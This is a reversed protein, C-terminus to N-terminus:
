DTERYFKSYFNKEPSIEQNQLTINEERETNNNKLNEQSNSTNIPEVDYSIDQESNKNHSINTESNKESVREGTDEETKNNNATFTVKETQKSKLSEKSKVSESNTELQNDTNKQIKKQFLYNNQQSFQNILSDIVKDKQRLQDKLFAINDLLLTIIHEQNGTNYLATNLIKDKFLKVEHIFKTKFENFEDLVDNKFQHFQQTIDETETEIEQFNEKPLSICERNRFTNDIVSENEILTNLTETFVDSSIEFEVYEKM